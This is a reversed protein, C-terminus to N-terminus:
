IFYIMTMKKMKNHAFFFIEKDRKRKRVGM